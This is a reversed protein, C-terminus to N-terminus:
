VPFVMVILNYLNREVIIQPLIFNILQSTCLFHTKHRTMREKLSTTTSGYYVEPGLTTNIQYIKGKQYDVMKINKIDFYIVKM